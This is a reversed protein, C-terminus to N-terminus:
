HKRVALGADLAVKRLDSVQARKYHLIDAVAVADANADVVAAV